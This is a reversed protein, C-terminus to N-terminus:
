YRSSGVSGGEVVGPGPSYSHAGEESLIVAGLCLVDGVAVREEVAGAAEKTGGGPTHGVTKGQRRHARKM